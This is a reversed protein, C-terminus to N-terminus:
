NKLKMGVSRLLHNKAALARQLSQDMILGDVVFPLGAAASIQIRGDGVTRITAHHLTVALDPLHLDCETGRGVTLQSQEYSKARVIERGDATRAVKRVIFSM